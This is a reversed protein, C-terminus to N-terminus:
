SWRRQWETPNQRAHMVAFVVVMDSEVTFYVAYPLRRLQAHRITPRLEQYKFPGNAIRDFTAQLGDLFELGLGSRENEYWAYAAEVNRDAQQDSILRYTTM